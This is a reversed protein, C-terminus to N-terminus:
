GVALGSGIANLFDFQNERYYKEFVKDHFSNEKKRKEERRGFDEERPEPKREVKREIKEERPKERKESKIDERAKAQPPPTSKFKPKLESHSEKKLHKHSPENSTATDDGNRQKVKYSVYSIAVTVVFLGAAIILSNYIVPLLEM